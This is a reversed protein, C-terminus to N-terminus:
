THHGGVGSGPGRGTDGSGYINTRHRAGCRSVAWTLHMILYPTGRGRGSTADLVAEDAPFTIEIELPAVEVYRTVTTANRHEDEAYVEIYTGWEGNTLLVAKQFAGSGDRVTAEGDITFSVIDADPCTGEVVVYSLDVVIDDDPRLLTVTPATADKVAETGEASSSTGAANYARVSLTLTGDDLGTCDIAAYVTAEGGSATGVADHTGDSLTVEVTDYDKTTEPLAVEVLAYDVNSCNVVNTDNGWGETVFAGAPADPVTNEIVLCSRTEYATEGGQTYAAQITIWGLDGATLFTSTSSPADVTGSGGGSLITWELTGGEPDVTCALPATDSIPTVCRLIRPERSRVASM